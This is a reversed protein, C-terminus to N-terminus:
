APAAAARPLLSIPGPEPLARGCALGLLGYGALLVGVALGGYSAALTTAIIPPIAGGPIAALSYALGAATYRYRAAFLEPLWAAAPGLGFGGNALVACLGFGVAVPHRLEMVLFAAPGVVIAVLNGVQVVRRRGVRDSWRAAVVVSGALVGGGLVGLVLMTPGTLGLVATGYSTLYVTGIYGFAFVGSLAGGARLIPPTEHRLAERIPASSRQRRAALERFVPTEDIRLRVYLGIALLVVSLLFPIRWGWALFSPPALSLGTILFTLSTLAFAAGPGLQPYMTFRGRRERPAYEAALLAAGGWEGGVALGQVFRLAVLIIPAAVGITAASPLLGVAVTSAGMLTLTLILTRKRGLRDGLHGFLVAGLPRALFAVAFTAIAAVTGAAAGLAPFFVKGFVLAAATGYIFFDYFEITTGAFAAFAVRRLPDSPPTKRTM